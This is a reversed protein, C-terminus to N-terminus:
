YFGQRFAKSVLSRPVAHHGCIGAHIELLLERGQDTPICKQLIGSPSHKYLEEGVVVFTKACRALRRAETANASLTDRLLYDLFPTTWSPELVVVELNLAGMKAGAAPEAASEPHSGNPTPTPVKALKISPEQADNVFVRPLTHERNSTLKALFDAALNDHRLVHHLELGDFKEQLKRVENYSAVMKEGCCSAEKMVQDVVLESNGRIDLWRSGLEFAIKLGYILTEYEAM